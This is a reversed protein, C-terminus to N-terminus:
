LTTPNVSVIGHSEPTWLKGNEVYRKCVCMVDITTCSIQVTYVPTNQARAKLCRAKTKAEKQRKPVVARFAAEPAQAAPEPPGPPEASSSRLQCRHRWARAQGRCVASAASFKSSDFSATSHHQPSMRQM